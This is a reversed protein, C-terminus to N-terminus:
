QLEIADDSLANITFVQTNQFGARQPTTYSTIVVQSIEFLDLFVSSVQVVEQVQCIKILRTIDREPIKNGIDQIEFINDATERTEGVIIIEATVDFDGDSIYEKVTGNSGVVPTTVVNRTQTVTFLVNDIRLGEYAIINGDLDRYSGAAVELNSIVPSGLLSRRDFNQTIIEVEEFQESNNKQIQAPNPEKFQQARVVNVAAGEVVFQSPQRLNLLQSASVNFNGKRLTILNAGKEIFEDAM